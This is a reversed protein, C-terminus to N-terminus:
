KGIIKQFITELKSIIRAGVGMKRSFRSQFRSTVGIVEPLVFNTKGEVDLAPLYRRVAGSTHTADKDFGNNFVKSWLPYITLGKVKFQHFFWRIAWSDLTGSMQKDLMANLDSGGLAFAKREADNKEFAAYDRVEWDVKQWRDKWTAWGWSWGRNLFYADATYSRGASKGLNFSYGSVSFVQHDNKYKDLCLNMFLLFNPTTNLDDELVIVEDFREFVYSVGEIISKALGKNAEAEVIHVKKFGTITKIYARIASVTGADKEYKAADSFVYLECEEALDNNQLHNVTIKLTDLRKYTFLLIPAVKLM